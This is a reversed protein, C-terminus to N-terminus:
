MEDLLQQRCREVGRWALAESAEPQVLLVFYYGDKLEASLITVDTFALKMRRLAGAQTSTCIERLRMLFIGQYAGIIRLEHDSIDRDCVLDVTEGDYDLFIAALAGPTTALLENLILRFM